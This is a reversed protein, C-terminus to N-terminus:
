IQYDLLENASQNSDTETWALAGRKESPWLAAVAFHVLVGWVCPFILGFVLLGILYSM